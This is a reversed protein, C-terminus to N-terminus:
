RNKIGVVGSPKKELRLSEAPNTASKENKGFPGQLSVDKKRSKQFIRKKGGMVKGMLALHKLAVLWLSVKKIGVSLGLSANRKTIIHGALCGVGGWIKPLSRKHNKGNRPYYKLITKAELGGGV